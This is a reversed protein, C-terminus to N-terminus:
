LDPLVNRNRRERLLLLKQVCYLAALRKKHSLQLPSCALSLIQSKLLSSLQTLAQLTHSLMHPVLWTVSIKGIFSKPHHLTRKGEEDDESDSYSKDEIFGSSASSGTSAM